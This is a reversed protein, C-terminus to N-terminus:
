KLESVGLYPHLCEPIKVSGDKQQFNELLAAVTRGIALGSGNITHLYFLSGKKKDKYRIMIRRAQFDGFLSCSSVERYRNQSPFWVELDYTKAASFGLDGTCLLMVRYPLGLAKLIAEADQLLGELELASNQPHCLKVLEVKNFQHQRIIGKVDQGYSGAEKRFCATGATLKIPLNSDLIVEDRYLNTLQVEATPSLWFSDDHISFSDERFKPLQGTGYLSEENILVPPLVEEYGHNQTHFDLMFNLLARELKAGLGRYVVFRSGTITAASNFDFLGLSEGIVEHSKIDFDFNPINGQICVLQNDQEGCGDPVDLLPINPFLLAMESLQQEYQKVQIQLLKIEDSIGKLKILQDQDPKGQPMQKKRQSIKADMEQHVLRWKQDLDLYKEFDDLCFNRKLLGQKVEVVDRIRKPDLM